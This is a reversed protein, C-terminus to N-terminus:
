KIKFRILRRNWGNTYIETYKKSFDLYMTYTYVISPILTWDYIGLNELFLIREIKKNNYEFAYRLTDLYKYSYKNRQDYWHDFLKYSKTVNFYNGSGENTLKLNHNIDKTGTLKADPVILELNAFTTDYNHYLNEPKLDFKAFEQWINRTFGKPLTDYIFDYLRFISTSRNFFYYDTLYVNNRFVKLKYAYANAISIKSDVVISDIATKGIKNGHIDNETYEYIWYSGIKLPFYKETITNNGDDNTSSECGTFFVISILLFSLSIKSNIKM